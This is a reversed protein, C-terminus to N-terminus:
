KKVGAIFTVSKSPIMLNTDSLTIGDCNLYDLIPQQLTLPLDGYGPSFRRKTKEPLMEQVKDCLAETLASAVADTVFQQATSRVATQRILRDVSHGLTVAVVYASSCESLVRALQLSKIEGFGLTVTDSNVTVSTRAYTYSCDAVARIENEAVSSLSFVTALDTCMMRAALENNDLTLNDISLKIM